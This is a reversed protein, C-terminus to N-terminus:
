EFGRREKGEGEGKRGDKMENRAFFFVSGKERGLVVGPESKGQDLDKQVVVAM